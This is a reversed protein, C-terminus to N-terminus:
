WSDATMKRYKGKARRRLSRFTAPLRDLGSLRWLDRRRAVPLIPTNFIRAFQALVKAPDVCDPMRNDRYWPYRRLQRRLKPDRDVAVVRDVLDDLSPSDHASLFSRTDFDRGVLPDGWYIPITGALM